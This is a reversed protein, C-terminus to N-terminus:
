SKSNGIKMVLREVVEPFYKHELIQVKKAVDEATDSPSVDCSAQFIIQGEDYHENVYHITIGSKPEKAKVIATHVNMGYMGKGGYAPLLAPHINIIRNPYNKVLYQPILWLFGALIIWDIKKEQLISLAKEQEFFESRSVVVTPVGFKEARKLAFADAKNALLLSVEVDERGQFYEMIKEANSGSGSCFLAIRIM